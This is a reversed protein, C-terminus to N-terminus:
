DFYGSENWDLGGNGDDEDYYDTQDKKEMEIKFLLEELMALDASLDQRDLTLTQLVEELDKKEDAHLNEKKLDINVKEIETDLAQIQEHLALINNQIREQGSMKEKEMQRM